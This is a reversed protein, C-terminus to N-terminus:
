GGREHTCHASLQQGRTAVEHAVIVVEAAFVVVHEEPCLALRTPLKHLPPHDSSEAVGVVWVAEGTVAALVCPCAHTHTPTPAPMHTNHTRAHPSPSSICTCATNQSVVSNRGKCRRLLTYHICLYLSRVYMVICKSALMISCWCQM